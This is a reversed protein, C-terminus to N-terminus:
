HQGFFFSSEFFYHVFSFCWSQLQSHYLVIFAVVSAASTFVLTPCIQSLCFQQVKAWVYIKNRSANLEWRTWFRLCFIFRWVLFSRKKNKNKSNGGKEKLMTEDDEFALFFWRQGDWCCCLFRILIQCLPFVLGAAAAAVEKSLAGFSFSWDLEVVGGGVVGWRRRTKLCSASSCCLTKSAM